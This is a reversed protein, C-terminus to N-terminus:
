QFFHSLSNQASKAHGMFTSLNNEVKLLVLEDKGDWYGMVGTTIEPYETKLISYKLVSMTYIHGSALEVLEVATGGQRTQSLRKFQCVGWFPEM